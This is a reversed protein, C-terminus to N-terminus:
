HPYKQVNASLSTLSSIMKESGLADTGNPASDPTSPGTLSRTSSDESRGKGDELELYSRYTHKGEDKLVDGTWSFKRKGFPWSRDTVAKPVIQRFFPKLVPVCACVLGTNIEIISWLPSEAEMWRSDVM